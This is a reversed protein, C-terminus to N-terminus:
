RKKLNEQPESSARRAAHAYGATMVQHSGDTLSLLHLDDM